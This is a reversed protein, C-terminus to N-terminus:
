FTGSKLNVENNDNKFASSIYEAWFPQERKRVFVYLLGENSINWRSLPVVFNFSTCVTVLKLKFHKITVFM